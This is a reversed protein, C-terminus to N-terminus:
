GILESTLYSMYEQVIQKKTLSKKESYELMVLAKASKDKLEVILELKQSDSLKEATGDELIESNSTPDSFQSEEFNAEISDFDEDVDEELSSEEFSILNLEKPLALSLAYECFLPLESLTPHARLGSIFTEIEDAEEILSFFAIAKFDDDLLALRADKLNAVKKKLNPFNVEGSNDFDIVLISNFDKLQL